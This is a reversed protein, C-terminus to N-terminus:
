KEPQQGYGAFKEIVERMQAATLLKPEGLQLVRWYQECLTELEVALALAHALDDGHVVMGHHAILCARRDQLAALISASLAPTGFTAYDACRVDDGGFRAIMYHFPPIRLRQCALATAFPPHAHIIAGAQPYAAYIDLHFRLESSPKRRCFPLQPPLQSSLQPSAATGGFGVKVMDAATCDRHEIGTPTILCGDALRVSVNGASGRNLDLRVLEGTVALVEEALGALNEPAVSQGRTESSSENMNAM